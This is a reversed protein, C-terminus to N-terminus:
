EQVILDTKVLFVSLSVAGLITVILCDISIAFPAYYM